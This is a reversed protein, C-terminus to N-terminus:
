KEQIARTQAMVLGYYIGRRELLEAHTGIEAIEGHDIVILRNANRLTSLRHAIAFTTRGHAVHNIAEQIDRETETDLAATAEDLILIRPDHILARAIAIRQREGGSLSYGKEGVITNYGQPLSMIFDHACATRAAAIVEENTADPKSYRINDRISGSFLHTEQLVIGIQSRLAEQSIDRIDVGDICISGQEVDYLRMLLNILTTKGSGSHGVIGIMEGQKVDFSIDRLVPHYTEYGFTINRVSVDGEIRIDIPLDIDKLEPEEEFIEIIKSLATIFSSFERPISTISELPGYITDAYANMQNLEGVTLTGQFLFLNGFLMIGYSGIRMLFGLFPFILNNFNANSREQAARRESIDSLAAIARDEGGFAKVIRIGNLNEQLVTNMNRDLIWMRRNRRRMMHRFRFLLFIVLPLPLMVFLCILPNMWLLVVLALLFSFAQAFYTPLLHVIFNQVTDVNGNIRNMLDGASKKQISSLSLTEVKQFVLSRFGLTFRNVAIASLRQQLLSLLSRILDCLIMAGIVIAFEFASGRVIGEPPIIYQNIAIRQIMPVIFTFISYIISLFFPVLMLLRIGRTMDFLQRYMASRDRCFPCITTSKLYPRGCKPCVSEPSHNVPPTKLSHAAIKECALAAACYRNLHRGTFRCLCVSYNGPGSKAYFARCGYQIEITFDHLAGIEWTAEIAGDYLRFIRNDTVLLYGNVRQNERLDYPLCMMRREDSHLAAQVAEEERPPLQYLLEM